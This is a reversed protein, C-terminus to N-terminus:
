SRREMHDVLVLSDRHIAEDHHPFDTLAAAFQDSRLGCLRSLDVHNYNSVGIAIVDGKQNLIQVADGKDFEGTTNLIGSPLLSSGRELIASEAGQDIVLDGVPQSFFALYRKSGAMKTQSPVFLTGIDDGALISRLVSFDHGDAIWLYEGAAMCIEAAELKTNMGGVSFENGDTSGALSWIREDINGVLSLREGLADGVRDRLGNVTTLLITLDARVMAAVKAALTDNDGFRIEDVSVADNENVIPLLGHTQLMNLCNCLNLNRRRSKVDAACLLVQACHFDHSNCANEYHKMMRSQGVAALAQLRSLDTPRKTQKMVGMGAGIAGSTVLFIELGRDRLAALENVLEAIRTEEGAGIDCLLRSGVKIVVRRVSGVLAARSECRVTM